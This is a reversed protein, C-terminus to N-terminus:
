GPLGWLMLHSAHMCAPGPREGHSHPLLGCASSSDQEQDPVVGDRQVIALADPRRHCPSIPVRPEAVHILRSHLRCEVGQRSARARDHAASPGRREDIQTVRARTQVVVPLRDTGTDVARVMGRVARWQHVRIAERIHGRHHLMDM